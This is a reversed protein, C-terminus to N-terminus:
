APTERPEVPVALHRARRCVFTFFSYGTDTQILGRAGVEGAPTHLTRSQRRRLRRIRSGLEM